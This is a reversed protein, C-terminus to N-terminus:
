EADAPPLRVGAPAPGGRRAGGGAVPRSAPQRGAQPSAAPAVGALGDQAAPPAQVVPDQYYFQRGRLLSVLAGLVSMAIAATFVVVLGHHFPAAILHPFYQKSTLAPRTAQGSAEGASGIAALLSRIPNYGLLASFLTSM